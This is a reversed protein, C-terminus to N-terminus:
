FLPENWGRENTGEGVLRPPSSHFGRESITTKRRRLECISPLRKYANWSLEDRIEGRGNDM